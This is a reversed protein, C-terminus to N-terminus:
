AEDQILKLGSSTGLREAGAELLAKAFDAEKIGGSAKIKIQKPLIRRMLRIDELQAGESHFGTSTKVFDASAEVCLACASEKEAETLASTEIIIKAKKSQLHCATVTSHIDNRLVAMDGSKLAAINMVIDMEDAGDQAAKKIEEVKASVAHYGMPFGIVTSIKQKAKHEKFYQKASKVHYPPVCVGWLEAEMAEKCLQLIADKDADSKLLSHEIHSKLSTM